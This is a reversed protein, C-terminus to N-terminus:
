SGTRSEEDALREVIRVAVRNGDRGPLARYARTSGVVLRVGDDVRRGLPVVDGPQLGLVTEVPVRTSGIEARVPMPVRQLSELLSARHDPQDEGTAFYRHAALDGVVSEISRYPLCISLSGTATGISLEMIILVSPESAPVIQAFQANMEIGRLRFEVPVLDGWAASLEDLLREMLNSALGAEIETLERIRGNATGPGGLMRDIMAFLLPLDISAMANTGLPSVELVSTFTPVPLSSVFDGYPIQEAGTVSVEVLSRVQGSLFTSARRCFSEHLMQLTRLQDKNFKSPRAFDMKRVYRHRQNARGAAAPLSMVPTAATAAPVAAGNAAAAPHEAAMALLSDIDSQSLAEAM